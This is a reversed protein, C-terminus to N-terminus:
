LTPKSQLTVVDNKRKILRNLYDVFGEVGALRHAIAVRKSNHEETFGNISSMEQYQTLIYWNIFTNLESNNLLNEALSGTQKIKDLESASKDKLMEGMSPQSKMDQAISKYNM